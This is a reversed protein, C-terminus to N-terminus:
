KNMQEVAHFTVYYKKVKYPEKPTRNDKIKKIM